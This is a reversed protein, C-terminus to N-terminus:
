YNKKILVLQEMLLLVLLAENGGSKQEKDQVGVGGRQGQPLPKFDHATKPAAPQQQSTSASKGSRDNGGTLVGKSLLFQNPDASCHFHLM